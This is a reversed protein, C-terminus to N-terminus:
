LKRSKFVISQPFKKAKYPSYFQSRFAYDNDSVKLDTEEVIREVAFGAKALANIYDSLRRNYLTLPFGSEKNFDSNSRNAPININKKFTFPEEEFYSGSFILTNEFAEICHMFPHDWSFIFVGDQKLYSSILNFTKQLDMTWGIAYISYVIDFYNEPIGPNQEMPANFLYAKYHNDSLFKAANEIQKASLDLGWLEEAGKDGCWKLSHGSGCGIDLVKKDELEPFLGLEDETPIFCGYVPLATVGFFSDAIADWSEKNQRLINKKM